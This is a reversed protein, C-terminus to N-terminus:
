EDTNELENDHLLAFLLDAVNALRDEADSDGM